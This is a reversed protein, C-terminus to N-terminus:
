VSYRENTLVVFIVGITDVDSANAVKLYVRDFDDHAICDADVVIKNDREEGINIEKEAIIKEETGTENTAIVQAVVVAPSGAGTAIVFHAAQFNDLVVKETTIEANFIKAPKVLVKVETNKIISM